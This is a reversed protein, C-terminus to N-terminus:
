KKEQKALKAKLLEGLSGLSQASTAEAQQRFDNMTKEEEDAARSAEGLVLSIRRNARDIGEVKVEVTEGEKLVERPHNIRKGAGLRSIHILGDVGAGLTVFAGFPALRAVRGSHFSGEPFDLIVRDWPDALTEKLSLTIRDAAWDLKKIVVAVEQGVALVERVDAVRSWGLEAMPILGEIGGLDVFAGFDRLSTVTGTVTTGEQLSEKLSERQRQQEEELLARHSLVINRGREGYQTIRFPLHRGIFAAPEETRRLSIQSYPCFARSTGGIKVEFGGKIEKEVFGEVPIGAHFADELQSSAAPGGGVKVTFRLEGGESGVFWATISDGERVTLNGEADLLEKRDLVGEGKRGTDLFVWESAIKMIKAQVQQGPELRGQQRFSQEFLEAFSGEDSAEPTTKKETDM